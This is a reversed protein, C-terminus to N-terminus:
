GLFSPCPGAHLGLGFPTKETYVYVGVGFGFFNATGFSEEWRERSNTDKALSTANRQAEGGPVEGGADPGLGLLGLGGEKM